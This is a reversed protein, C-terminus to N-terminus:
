KEVRGELISVVQDCHSLTDLRHSVVIITMTGKLKVVSEVFFKEGQKDLSSTPEEVLLLKPKKILERALARRQAQGGSLEIGGSGLIAELRGLDEVLTRCGALTMVDWIEQGISGEERKSIDRWLLINQEVSTDFLTPTQHLYGISERFQAWAIETQPVNGISLSGDTPHYLGAISKLLSPKGLGWPSMIGLFTAEPLDLSLERRPSTREGVINERVSFARNDVKKLHRDHM